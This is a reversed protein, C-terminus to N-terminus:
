LKWHKRVQQKAARGDGCPKKHPTRIHAQQQQTYIILIVHATFQIITLSLRASNVESVRGSRAPDLPMVTELCRSSLRSAISSWSKNLAKDHEEHEVVHLQMATQATSDSFHNIGGWSGFCVKCAPVPLDLYTPKQKSNGEGLHIASWPELAGDARSIAVCIRNVAICFCYSTMHLNILYLRSENDRIGFSERFHKSIDTGRCILIASNLFFYISCGCKVFTYTILLHIHLQVRSIRSINLINLFLPSIAGHAIEGRKWLIKNGTILNEDKSLSWIKM